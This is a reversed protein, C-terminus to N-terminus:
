AEESKRTLVTYRNAQLKSALGIKKREEKKKQNKNEKKFTYYPLDKSISLGFKDELEVEVEAEDLYSGYAEMIYYESQMWLGNEVHRFAKKLKSRSYIKNAIEFSIGKNQSYLKIIDKEKEIILRTIDQGKYIFKGM